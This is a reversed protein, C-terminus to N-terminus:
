KEPFELTVGKCMIAVEGIYGEFKFTGKEERFGEINGYDLSNNMDVNPRVNEMEPLTKISTVDNFILRGLKYCTYETPLPATYFKHGEWLSAEIDFIIQRQEGNFRWGLIWSDELDVYEFKDRLDVYEFM